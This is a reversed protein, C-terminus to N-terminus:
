NIIAFKGVKEGIGEARVHYFYLGFAAELNDKTRLDWVAFGASEPLERVFTGNVTYIRITSQSPLNRFEIRREGRGQLFPRGETITAAVYPNPVVRIKDLLSEDANPDAVRASSRFAYADRAGFPIQSRLIFKDGAQPLIVQEDPLDDGASNRPREFTIQWSPIYRTDTPNDKFVIQINENLDIVGNNRTATPENLIFDLPRGTEYEYVKFFVPRSINGTTSTFHSDVPEGEPDFFEVVVSLPWIPADPYAFTPV